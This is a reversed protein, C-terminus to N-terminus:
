FLRNSARFNMKMEWLLWIAATISVNKQLKKLVNRRWICRLALRLQARQAWEIPGALSLVSCCWLWYACWGTLIMLSVISSAKLLFYETWRLSHLLFQEYAKWAHSCSEFQHMRNLSYGGFSIMKLCRAENTEEWLSNRGGVFFLQGPQKNNQSSGWINWGIDAWSTVGCDLKLHVSLM